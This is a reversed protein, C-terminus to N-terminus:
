GAYVGHSKFFSVSFPEIKDNSQSSSLTIHCLLGTIYQLEIHHSMTAWNYIHLESMHHSMTAWNYIHLESMHHSMTAWNSIHLESYSTVYYGLKSICSM